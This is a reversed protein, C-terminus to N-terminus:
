VCQGQFWDAASNHLFFQKREEKCSKGNGLNNYASWYTVALIVITKGDLVEALAWDLESYVFLVNM